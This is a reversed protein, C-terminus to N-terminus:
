EGKPWWVPNTELWAEPLLQRVTQGNTLYHRTLREDELESWCVLLYEVLRTLALSDQMNAPTSPPYPMKNIRSLFKAADGDETIRPWTPASLPALKERKKPEADKYDKWTAELGAQAEEAAAVLGALDASGVAEGLVLETRDIGDRTGVVIWHSLRPLVDQRHPQPFHWMGSAHVGESGVSVHTVVLGGDNTEDVVALGLPIAKWHDDERM